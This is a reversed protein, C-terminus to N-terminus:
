CYVARPFPLHKLLFNGESIRHFRSLNEETGRTCGNLKLVHHLPPRLTEEVTQPRWPQFDDPDWPRDISRRSIRETTWKPAASCSKDSSRGGSTTITAGKGVIDQVFIWIWYICIIHMGRTSRGEGQKHLWRM